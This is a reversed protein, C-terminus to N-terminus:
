RKRTTWQVGGTLHYRRITGKEQAHIVHAWKHVIEREYADELPDQPECPAITAITPLLQEIIEAHHDPMHDDGTVIVPDDFREALARLIYPDIKGRWGLEKVGFAPRGRRKLETALRPNLDEDIVLIRDPQSYM